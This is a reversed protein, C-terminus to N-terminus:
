RLQQAIPGLRTGNTSLGVDQVGAIACLERLFDLVGQRILPEGGTVRFKVIGLAVAVRAIRLLEEYSLIDTRPLLEFPGHPQCYLCRENCRDTVSIRMYTVVHVRVLIPHNGSSALHIILPISST